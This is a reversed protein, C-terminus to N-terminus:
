RFRTGRSRARCTPAITLSTTNSIAAADIAPAGVAAAFALGFM